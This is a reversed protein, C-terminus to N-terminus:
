SALRGSVVEVLGEAARALRLDRTVLPVELAEALAVYSADYPTINHRLQWIRHRLPQIDHRRITLNLFRELAQTSDTSFRSTREVKRLASMYELDVINPAHLIENSVIRELTSGGDGNLVDVLASSDIVM